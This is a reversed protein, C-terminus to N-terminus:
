FIESAKLERLASVSRLRVYNNPDGAALQQLMPVTSADRLKSLQDIAEIRVGPNGDAHLADLLAQKVEADGSFAKLSELAKLRVGPNQDTRLAFILASRIEKRAPCFEDAARDKLVGISDLRIGPNSYNRAAYLLLREMKPDDAPGRVVRRRTTDLVIELNGQLDPHISHISSINAINFEEPSRILQDLPPLGARYSFLAWGGAFGVLLLAVAALAPQFRPRLGGFAAVAEWLRAWVLRERREQELSEALRIRCSALLNPNM